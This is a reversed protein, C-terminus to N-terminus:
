KEWGPVIHSFKKKIEKYEKSFVIILKEGPFQEKMLEIHHRSRDDYWGKVEHYEIQGNPLIVEFDPVFARGDTFVFTKPEHVWETIEGKEKLFQLYMAYNAERRSRFFVNANGVKRWGCKWTAKERNPPIINGYRKIKTRIGNRIARSFDEKHSERWRSAREMMKKKSYDGMAHKRNFSRTSFFCNEPSFGKNLDRRCLSNNINDDYGNSLSWERFVVFSNKWEDCMAIGRGGFNDYKKNNKNYCEGKINHYIKYIRQHSCGHKPNGESRGKNGLNQEHKFCGCSEIKHNLVDSIPIEKEAGCSCGFLFFHTKKPSDARRKRMGMDKIVTLRGFVSGIYKSYPSERIIRGEDKQSKPSNM